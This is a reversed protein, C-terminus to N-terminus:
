CYSCFCCYVTILSINVFTVRIRVSMRIRSNNEYLIDQPDPFANIDEDDDDEEAEPSTVAADSVAVLESSVNSITKEILGSKRSKRKGSRKGKRRQRV